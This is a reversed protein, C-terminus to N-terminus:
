LWILQLILKYTLAGGTRQVTVAGNTACYM